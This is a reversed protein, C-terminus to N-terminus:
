RRAYLGGRPKKERPGPLNMMRFQSTKQLYTSENFGSLDQIFMRTTLLPFYDETVGPCFEISTAFIRKEGGIEFHSASLGEVTFAPSEGVLGSWGYDGSALM